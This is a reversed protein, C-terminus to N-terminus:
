VVSKRDLRALPTGIGLVRDIDSALLNAEGRCLHWGVLEIPLGSHLVIRAAEPDVWMNFEAAPTVNGETCTNGGMIVCRSVNAVLSPHRSVALAINTLPGLTVLVIGPNASIVEAIADVAHNSEAARKPPPYGQDGLGDRGHFWQAHQIERLLPRAAGRHVPVDSACLEATYLANRTAQELGVNGAVVTIADVQVDPARLAMILAVADDSATDTDILFHRM